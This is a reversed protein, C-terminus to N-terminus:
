PAPETSGYVGTTTPPSLEKEVLEAFDEVDTVECRDIEFQARSIPCDCGPLCFPRETRTFEVLAKLQDLLRDREERITM